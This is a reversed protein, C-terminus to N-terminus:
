DLSTGLYSAEAELQRILATDNKSRAVEIRHQLNRMLHNRHAAATNALTERYKKSM